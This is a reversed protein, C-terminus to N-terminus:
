SFFLIKIASGIIVVAMLSKLWKNGKKIASHAGFYGGILMGAFLVVAIRYDILGKIIFITVASLSLATYAVLETANAELIPLGFFLVVFTINIIGIGGIISALIGLVFYIAYRVLHWRKSVERYKLGFEKNIFLTPALVLLVVGIILNLSSSKLSLLINAGVLSALIGAILLGIAYHWIIKKEKIFKYLAGASVGLGGFKNTALAIQPPIGLFLLLPISILGGGGVAAGIFGALISVIFIILLSVNSFM